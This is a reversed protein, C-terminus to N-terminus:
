VGCQFDPRCCLSGGNSRQNLLPYRAPGTLLRDRHQVAPLQYESNKQYSTEFIGRLNAGLSFAFGSLYQGDHPMVWASGM